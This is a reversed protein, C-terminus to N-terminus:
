SGEAAGAELLEKLNGLDAVLQRTGIRKLVPDAVKFLGTSDGRTLLTVRTADGVPEFTRENAGTNRGYVMTYAIRRGPEYETVECDVPIQRGLFRMVQRLTTGKGLPGQSTIESEIMVTAWADDNGPDGAYAFVEEVPRDIVETHKIEM